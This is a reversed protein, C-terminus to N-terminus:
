SAHPETAPLALRVSVGRGPTGVIDLRARGGFRARLRERLQTLGLGARRGGDGDGGALRAPDAGVGDDCVEVVLEPGEIRAAIALTGADRRPFLGHRVANEVLPQVSFAPVGLELADPEIREIVRLREGMRLKEVFLTDRVWALERELSVLTETAPITGPTPPSPADDEHLRRLAAGLRAIAEEAAETDGGVLSSVSELANHLFHPEIRARLAALRAEAALARQEAIRRRASVSDAVGAVSGYLAVGGIATWILVERVLMPLADPSFVSAILALGGAWVLGTGAALVAHRALRSAGERARVWPLARWALGGALVAPLVHGLAIRVAEVPARGLSLFGLAYMGVLVAAAGSAAGWPVPLNPPVTTPASM